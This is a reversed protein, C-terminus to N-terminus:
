SGSSKRTTSTAVALALSILSAKLPGKHCRDQRNLQFAQRRAVKLHKMKVTFTVVRTPFRRTVLRTSVNRLSCKGQPDESSSFAALCQSMSASICM